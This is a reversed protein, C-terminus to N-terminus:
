KFFHAFRRCFLLMIALLAFKDAKFEFSKLGGFVIPQRRCQICCPSVSDKTYHSFFSTNIRANKDRVIDSRQTTHWYGCNQWFVVCRHCYWLKTVISLALSCVRIMTNSVTLVSHQYLQATWAQKYPACFLYQLFRLDCIKLQDLLKQAGTLTAGM